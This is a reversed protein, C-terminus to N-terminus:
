AYWPHRAAARSPTDYRRLLVGLRVRAPSLVRGWLYWWNPHEESKKKRPDYGLLYVERQTLEPLSIMKIGDVRLFNKEDSVGRFHLINGPSYHVRAWLGLTEVMTGHQWNGFLDV